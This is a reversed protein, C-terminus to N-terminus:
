YSLGVLKRLAEMDMNMATDVMRGVPMGAMPDGVTAPSGNFDTLTPTVTNPVPDAAKAPGTTKGSKEAPAPAPAPSDAKPTPRAIGLEAAVMAEVKAFRDAYTLSALDPDDRLVKDIAVARSWEKGGKSMWEALLPNAAIGLDFQEDDSLAPQQQAPAPAQPQASVKALGDVLAKEIKALAPFDLREEESLLGQAARQALDDNEAETGSVKKLAEALQAQLDHVKRREGELVAYPIIRKGDRTAIGDVREIDGQKPEQAAAPAESSEAKAAPEAPAAETQPATEGKPEQATESAAEDGYLLQAYTQPDSFDASSELAELKDTLNSM